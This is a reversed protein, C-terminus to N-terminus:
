FIGTTCSKSFASLEKDYVDNLKVIWEKIPLDIKSDAVMQLCILEEKLSLSESFLPEEGVIFFNNVLNAYENIDGPNRGNNEYGGFPCHDPHYFKLNNYTISFSKHAENLSNWVPNDLKNDSQM